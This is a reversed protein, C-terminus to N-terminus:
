RSHAAAARLSEILAGQNWSDWGEVLQGAELVLWSMGRVVIPARTAEIGFAEGLHTGVVNWRVVVTNEEAVTSEVSIRLDPFAKLLQARVAKFEAPGVVDIGEMHGISQPGLVRDIFAENRLNWVEEFWRIALQRNENNM